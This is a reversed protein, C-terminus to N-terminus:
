KLIKDGGGFEITGLVIFNRGGTSGALRADQGIGGGDRGRAKLQNINENKKDDLEGGPVFLCCGGM